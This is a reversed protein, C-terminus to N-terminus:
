FVESAVQELLKRLMDLDIIQRVDEDVEQLSVAM